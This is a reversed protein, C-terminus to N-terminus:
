DTKCGSRLAVPLTIRDLQVGELALAGLRRREVPRDLPVRAAGVADASAVATGGTLRAGTDTLFIVLNRLHPVRECAELLRKEEEPRLWRTRGPLRSASVTALLEAKTRGTPVAPQSVPPAVPEIPDVAAIM